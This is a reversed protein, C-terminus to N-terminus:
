NKIDTPSKSRMDINQMREIELIILDCTRTDHVIGLYAESKNRVFYRSSM